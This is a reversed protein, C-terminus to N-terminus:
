SGGRALPHVSGGHGCSRSRHALELCPTMRRQGSTVLASGSCLRAFGNKPTVLTRTSVAVALLAHCMNKVAIRCV